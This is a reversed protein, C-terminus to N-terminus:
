RSELYLPALMQDVPAHDDTLFTAHRGEFLDVYAEPTIMHSTAFINGRRQAAARLDDQTITSMSGLVVTTTRHDGSWSGESNILTVHPFTREMTHAFAILFKGSRLKDVVNVVYIGDPKLLDRIQNNFEHTTLHYPVSVDNFADGFVIDYSGNPLRQARTRADENYTVIRSDEPLGLRGHVIETVAPDIEIVEISSSPYVAEIYRPLVYGGGGVFLTRMDPSEVAVHETVESFIVEYGYRSLKSPDSLSVYSHVLQDLILAKVDEDDSDSIKICFYNSERVCPSQLHQSDLAYLALIVPAAVALMAAVRVRWLRGFVIAMVLLIAAVLLVTPRSGIWQVLVFGTLFVGFIAGATSVAYLRGVVKGTSGIDRLQLKIVIPSVMGLITSPVFFLLTTILVIRLLIPLDVVWGPVTAALPLVALSTLSALSLVVGLLTHSAKRDAIVGGLFNGLSIGALIIGIISTWTYLSVGIVPALIRAAVIELVLTATSALFVTLFPELGRVWRAMGRRPAGQPRGVPEPSTETTM